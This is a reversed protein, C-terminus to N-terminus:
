HHNGICALEDVGTNARKLPLSYDDVADVQGVIGERAFGESLAFVSLLHEVGHGPNM